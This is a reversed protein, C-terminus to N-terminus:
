ARKFVHINKNVDRQIKIGIGIGKTSAICLIWSGILSSYQARATLHDPACKEGPVRSIHKWIQGVVWCTFLEIKFGDEGSFRFYFLVCTCHSIVIFEVTFKLVATSSFHSFVYPYTSCSNRSFVNLM